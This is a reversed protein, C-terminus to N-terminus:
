WGPYLNAVVYIVYIFNTAIVVPKFGFLTFLAPAIFGGVIASGMNCALSTTGPSVFHLMHYVGKLSFLYELLYINLQSASTQQLNDKLRGWCFMKRTNDILRGWCFITRTIKYLGRLSQFNWVIISISLLIIKQFSIKKPVTFSNYFKM